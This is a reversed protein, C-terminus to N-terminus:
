VLPSRIRTMFRVGVSVDTRRVIECNTEIGMAEVVLRFRSPLWQPHAVELLAGEESVDRMVCLVPPRGRLAIHAHVRTQRRGFQRREAGVM